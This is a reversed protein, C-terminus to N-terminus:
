LGFILHCANKCGNHSMKKHWGYAYLAGKESPEIGRPRKLIKKHEPGPFMRLYVSHYKGPPMACHEPFMELASQLRETDQLLLLTKMHDLILVDSAPMRRSELLHLLEEATEICVAPDFGESTDPVLGM